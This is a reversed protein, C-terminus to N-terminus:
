ASGDVVRITYTLSAKDDEGVIVTITTIEGSTLAIASSAVGSTVSNGNVTISDAGAATVTVTVSADSSGDVSYIYVEDDYTPVETLAGSVNGTVVIDTPGTASTVGLVPKGTVKLTVSFGIKDDYPYSPEYATIFCTATWTTAMSTPLTIIVERSTGAQFDTNMTVQDADSHPIWNGEFTIEGGDRMGALFERFGDPSDHNSAEIADMSQNPGAITLGEGVLEGNWKLTTGFGSKAATTM